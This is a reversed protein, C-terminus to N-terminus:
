KLHKLYEQFQNGYRVHVHNDMKTGLLVSGRENMEM